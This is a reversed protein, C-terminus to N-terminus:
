LRSKVAKVYSVTLPSITSRLELVRGPGYNYAWHVYDWAGFMNKLHRLYAAGCAVNVEPNYLLGASKEPVCRMGIATAPELQMLGACGYKSRAAVRGSSEVKITALIRSPPVSYIAGYKKALMMHYHPNNLSGPLAVRTEFETTGSAGAGGLCLLGTLLLSYAPLVLRM